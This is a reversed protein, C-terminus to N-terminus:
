RLFLLSSTGDSLGSHRARMDVDAHEAHYESLIVADLREATNDCLQRRGDRADSNCQMGNRKCVLLDDNGTAGDEGGNQANSM